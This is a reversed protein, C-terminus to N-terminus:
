DLREELDLRRREFDLRGFRRTLDIRESDSM